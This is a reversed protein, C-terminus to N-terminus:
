FLHIYRLIGNLPQAIHRSFKRLKLYQVYPLVFYSGTFFQHTTISLGTAEM